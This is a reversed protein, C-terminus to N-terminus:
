PLYITDTGCDCGNCGGGSCVAGGTFNTCSNGYLITRHVAQDQIHIGCRMPTVSPSCQPDSFVSGDMHFLQNHFILTNVYLPSSSPSGAGRGIGIAGGTLADAHFISNHSVSIGFGQVPSTSFPTGYILEIGSWSCPSNYDWEDEIHNRRIDVFYKLDTQLGVGTNYHGHLFIGAGEYQQNDEFASDTMTGWASIVGGRKLPNNKPCGLHSVVNQVVYVQWYQNSVIIKTASPGSEPVVDWPPAVTFEVTAASPDTYSDIKRAQGLGRGDVIQIWHDAYTDAPKQVLMPGAVKVTNASAGVVDVAGDFGNRNGNSDFVIAEGDGGKDGTCTGVNRSVLLMEHTNDFHWFHAARWGPAGFPGLYDTAFGDATNDSFDVRHGAGLESALTGHVGEQYAAGAKFTNNWFISDEIRFRVIEPINEDTLDLGRDWGSIENSTMFLHDIPAGGAFVSFVPNSFINDYIFINSVPATSEFSFKGLLLVTDRPKPEDPCGPHTPYFPCFVRPDKFKIGTVSNHGILTFVAFLNTDFDDWNRNRVITTFSSGAGELSVKPPVIIGYRGTIGAYGDGGLDWQGMGFVVRGGGAAEADAVAAVVCPSDDRGDNPFCPPGVPFAPPVPPDPLIELTQDALPEWSVADRRVFVQYTGVPLTEPPTAPINVRLVYEDIPDSGTTVSLLTKTTPGVLRVRSKTNAPYPHLNRGIVKLQRPLGAPTQTQYFVNPSIWLPRADNILVPESWENALNRVWLAYSRGQTIVNPLRVTLSRPVDGYSMVPAVGLNSTSFFPVNAPHVQPVTTNIVRKYVVVDSSTFGWGAILLLDNPDGRVPSQHFTAKYVQPPAAHAISAGGFFQVAVFIVGAILAPSTVARIRSRM